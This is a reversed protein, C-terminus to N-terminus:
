NTIISNINLRKNKHIYKVICNILKKRIESRFSLKKKNNPNNGIQNISYGIDKIINIANRKNLIYEPCFKPGLSVTEIVYNPIEVNTLNQFFTKKNIRFSTNNIKVTKNTQHKTSNKLLTDLTNNLSQKQAILLRQIKNTQETFFQKYITRPIERTILQTAHEIKEKLTQIERHRATIIQNIIIKNFNNRTNIKDARNFKLKTNSLINYFNSFSLNLCYERIKLLFIANTLLAFNNKTTVKGNPQPNQFTTEM